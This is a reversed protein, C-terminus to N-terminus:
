DEERADLEIDACLFSDYNIVSLLVGVKSYLIMVFCEQMLKGEDTLRRTQLLSVGEEKDGEVGRTRTQIRISLALYLM